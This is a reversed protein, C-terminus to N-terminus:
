CGDFGRMEQLLRAVESTQDRGDIPIVEINRAEFLEREFDSPDAVTIYARKGHHSGQLENFRDNILRFLYSVNWDKFSYGIFLVVRGLLDAQFRYDMPTDLRLRRQYHQESVVMYSPFDLDGHFKIVEASGNEFPKNMDSEVVVTQCERKHLRMARELFNDYNTTYFFRCADLAALEAHIKSNLLDGDPPDMERSLWSALGAFENHRKLGFYELIELDGGRVRLMRVDNFGLKRAAEKVLEEWSPGRKIKGDHGKWTVSMSVGAGIFPLVVGRQYQSKLSAPCLSMVLEEEEPNPDIRFREPL